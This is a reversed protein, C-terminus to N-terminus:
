NLPSALVHPCLDEPRSEQVALSIKCNSSSLSSVETIRGSLYLQKQVENTVQDKVGIVM